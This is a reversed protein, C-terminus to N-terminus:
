GRGLQELLELVGGQSFHLIVFLLAVGLIGLLLCGAAMPLLPLRKGGVGAVEPRRGHVSLLRPTSGGTLERRLDDILEDLDQGAGSLGYEGQFGLVLCTYYVELAAPSRRRVEQLREFFHAGAKSESFMIAQLPRAAWDQRGSWDSHHVMEDLYAALAFRADEVDNPHLGARAANSRMTEFLQLLRRRLTEPPPLEIQGDRIQLGLLFFDTCLDSLTVPRSGEEESREEREVDDDTQRPNRM